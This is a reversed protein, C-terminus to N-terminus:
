NREPQLLNELKTSKFYLNNKHMHLLVMVIMIMMSTTTVTTMMMMTTTTTTTTTTMKMTFSNKLFSM